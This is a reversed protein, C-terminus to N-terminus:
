LSTKQAIVAQRIEKKAIKGTAIRPLQSTQLQICSPVKFHAIRSQLFAQLAEVTVADENRIQVSAAVIEGLREDPLGYVAAECVAPHDSLAYEVEACAINEGGRIVIDKARDKIFLFGHEDILGVDGTHFWGDKLALATEEPKKWYAKMVTAGKICIEGIEGAPLVSGKEDEIRIQTVPPSPRGTSEPKSLYFKGTITAGIANTETLGYGLGPQINDAFKEQMLKLHGPPRAAGGSQVIRLSRLDTKDFVPSNMVEWTMTPVGHLVSIREKEILALAQEADWKYMMVFKRLMVFSLLFQAHCGTVHFLPVNALIAPPFEPNEEKIEPRLTENADRVFIWTYLANIINRHTSLVGKPNGTSGSTYMISADDDPAVRIADLNISNRAEQGKQILHEFSQAPTSSAETKIAVAEVSLQDRVHSLQLLRERDAFIVKSGSDEIGYALEKSQWWSNMPVAIAGIMTIAMYALCWEPYNRSCIAVRDGQSIGYETILACSLAEAAALAQAFTYREEEYVLFDQDAEELGLQYIGRLNSAVNKFVDLAVGNITKPETELISGPARLNAAIDRLTLLDQQIQQASLVNKM